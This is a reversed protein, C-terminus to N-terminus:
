IIGAEKLEWYKDILIECGEVTIPESSAKLERATHKLGAQDKERIKALKMKLDPLRDNKNTEPPDEDPEEDGPERIGIPFEHDPFRRDFWERAQDLRDPRALFKAAHHKFYQRAYLPNRKNKYWDYHTVDDPGDPDDPAEDDDQNLGGDKKDQADLDEKLQEATSKKHPMDKMDKETEREEEEEDPYETDSGNDQNPDTEITEEETPYEIEPKKPKSPPQEEEQDPQYNKLADDIAADLREQRSHYSDILKRCLAATAPAVTGLNILKAAAQLGEEDAERIAKLEERLKPFDELEEKAKEFRDAKAKFPDKALKEALNEPGPAKFTGDEGEQLDLTESELEEKSRLGKLVDGFGDRLTFGRARYKLMRKPHTQWTGKKNTLGARNADAMSFTNVYYGALELVELTEPWTKGQIRLDAVDVHRGIGKRKAYCLATEGNDIYLEVFEELLGSKRVLGLVVDGWPAPINGVVAISQISTLYDLGISAGYQVKALIVGPNGKCDEPVIGSHAMIRCFWYLEKLDRPAMVGNKELPVAPMKDFAQGEREDLTILEKMNTTM